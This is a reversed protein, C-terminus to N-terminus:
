KDSLSDKLSNRQERYRQVVRTRNLIGKITTDSPAQDKLVSRARQGLYWTLKDRKNARPPGNEELWQRAWSLVLDAHPHAPRGGRYNKPQDPRSCANSPTDAEPLTEMLSERNVFRYISDRRRLRELNPVAHPGSLNSRWAIRRVRILEELWAVAAEADWATRKMMLVRALPFPMWELDVM